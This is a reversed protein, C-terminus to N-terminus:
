RSDGTVRVRAFGGLAQELLEADVADVYLKRGGISVPVYSLSFRGRPLVEFSPDTAEWRIVTAKRFPVVYTYIATAYGPAYGLRVVPGRRALWQPVGPVGFITFVADFFVAVSAPVGWQPVVAVCM